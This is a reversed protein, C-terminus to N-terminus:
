IHLDVMNAGIMVDRAKQRDAWALLHSSVRPVVQLVTAVVQLMEVVPYLQHSNLFPTVTVVSIEEACCLSNQLCKSIGLANQSM